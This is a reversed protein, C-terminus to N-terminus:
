PGPTLSDVTKYCYWEYATGMAGMWYITRLWVTSQELIGSCFEAFSGVKTIYSLQSVRPAISYM